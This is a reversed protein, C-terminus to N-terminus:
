REIAFPGVGTLDTWLGYLVMSYDGPVLSRTDFIFRVRGRKDASVRGVAVVSGDPANYWVALEEGPAFSEGSDFAVPEGSPARPPNPSVAVREPGNASAAAVTVSTGNSGGSGGGRADGYGFSTSSSIVAGVPAGARVRARITASASGGDRELRDIRFSLSNTGRENVFGGGGVGVDVIEILDGSFGFSVSVGSASADGSNRVEVRYTLLGGIAVSGSPQVRTSATVFARREIPAVREVTPTLTATPAPLATATASPVPSPNTTATATPVPYPYPQAFATSTTQEVPITLLTALLLCGVLLSVFMVSSSPPTTRM